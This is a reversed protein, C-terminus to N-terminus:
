AGQPEDSAVPAESSVPAEGDQEATRRADQRDRLKAEKKAAKARDREARQHNYNPKFVM